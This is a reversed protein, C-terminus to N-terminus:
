DGSRAVAQGGIPEGGKRAERITREIEDRTSPSAAAYISELAADLLETSAERQRRLVDGRLRAVLLRDVEHDLAEQEVARVGAMYEAIERLPPFSGTLRGTDVHPSWRRPIKAETPPREASGRGPAPTPAERFLRLRHRTRSLGTRADYWYVLDVDSAYWPALPCTAPLGSPAVKLEIGASSVRDMQVPPLPVGFLTYVAERWTEPACRLGERTRVVPLVAKPIEAEVSSRAQFGNFEAWEFEKWLRPLYPFAAVGFFVPYLFPSLAGLFQNTPVYEAFFFGLPVIIWGAPWWIPVKPPRYIRKAFGRAAAAFGLFVVATVAAELLLVGDLGWTSYLGALSSGTPTLHLLEWVASGARLEIHHASSAAPVPVQIVTLGGPALTATVNSWQADERVDFQVPVLATTNGQTENVYRTMTGPDFQELSITLSQVQSESNLVYFQITTDYVLDGDNFVAPGGPSSGQGYPLGWAGPLVPKGGVALTGEASGVSGFALLLTLSAALVASAPKM